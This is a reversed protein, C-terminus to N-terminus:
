LLLYSFEEFCSNNALGADEQCAGGKWPEGGEGEQIQSITFGLVKAQSGAGLLVKSNYSNLM